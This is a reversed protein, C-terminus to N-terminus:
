PARNVVEKNGQEKWVYWYPYCYVWYGAPIGTHGSWDCAQYFGYDRFETYSQRDQPAKFRRLLRGYKGEVHAKAPVHQEIATHYPDIAVIASVVAERVNEDSDKLAEVLAPLADRADPGLRELGSAAELRLKSDGESLIEVLYGPSAQIEAAIRQARNAIEADRHDMAAQVLPLAARGLEILDQTARERTRFHDDGLQEILRKIESAAVGRPHRAPIPEGRLSVLGLGFVTTLILSRVAYRSM